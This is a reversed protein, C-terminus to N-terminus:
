VAFKNLENLEVVKSYMLNFNQQPMLKVFDM